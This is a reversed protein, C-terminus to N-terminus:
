FITNVGMLTKNLALLEKHPFFEKEIDNFCKILNIPLLYIIVSNKCGQSDFHRAVIFDLVVESSSHTFPLEVWHPPRSSPRYQNTEADVPKENGARNTIQYASPFIVM